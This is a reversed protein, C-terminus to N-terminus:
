TSGSREVQLIDLAVVGQGAARVAVPNLEIEAIRERAALWAQSLRSAAAALAAIDRPAQGRFGQLLQWVHLGRLAAVFEEPGAPLALYAVDGLLEVMVGGSGIAAVPGLDRDERLALLVEVTDTVMQQLIVPTGPVKAHIDALAQALGADSNLRLHVLGQETKHEAAEPVPKAVLPWGLVAAAARAEDLTTVIRFGPVPMGNAALWSAQTAFASLAQGTVAGSATAGGAVAAAAAGAHTGARNGAPTSAGADVLRAGAARARRFKYLWECQQAAQDPDNAWLVGISFLHRCMEPDLDDGLSCLVVPKGTDRRMAAFIDLHNRMMHLAGNGYQIIVIESHPDRAVADVAGEFLGPETMVKGSPDVPNKIVGVSPVVQGLAAETAAAFESLPVDRRDCADALIGRCGGSISMIGVGARGPLEPAKGAVTLVMGAQWLESPTFVEVIGLQRLVSSYVRPASAVRGTHTATAVRGMESTGARLLVISIGKEYAAAAIRRLRWGDRLGETYVLIVPSEGEHVIHEVFDLATLDTENGVGVFYHCGIGRDQLQRVCATGIGGSQSIVSVPGPLFSARNSASGFTLLVKGTVNWVGETNPGVARIGTRAIAAKLRATNAAGDAVEEFGSAVVVAAGVGAAGCEELLDPVPDAHVCIMAADVPGPVDRITPYCPRGSVEKHKPNVLHIAGTFGHRVLRDLAMGPISKENPSAGIIAVSRPRLLKDLNVPVYQDQPKGQTM